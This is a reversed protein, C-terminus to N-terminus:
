SVRTPHASVPPTQVMTIRDSVLPLTFIGPVLARNTPMGDAVAPVREEVVVREDVDFVGEDDALVAHDGREAGLFEDPLPVVVAALLVGDGRNAGVLVGSCSSAAPTRHFSLGPVNTCVGLM